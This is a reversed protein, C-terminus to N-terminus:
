PIVKEFQPLSLCQLPFELFIMKQQEAKKRLKCSPDDPLVIMSNHHAFYLEIQNNLKSLFYGLASFYEISTSFTETDLVTFIMCFWAALKLVKIDM